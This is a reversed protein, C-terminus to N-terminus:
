VLFEGNEYITRRSGGARDGPITATVRKAETNVLDWHM